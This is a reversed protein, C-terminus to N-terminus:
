GSLMVGSFSRVMTVADFAAIAILGFPDLLM